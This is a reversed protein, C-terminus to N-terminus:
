SYQPILEGTGTIKVLVVKNTNPPSYEKDHSEEEKVLPFPEEGTVPSDGRGEEKSHILLETPSSSADKSQVTNIMIMIM